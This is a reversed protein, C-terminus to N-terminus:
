GTANPKAGAASTANKTSNSAATTANKSAGVGAPAQANALSVTYLAATVFATLLIAATIVFSIQKQMPISGVFFSYICKRNRLVISSYKLNRCWDINEREKPSIALGSLINRIGRAVAVVLMVEVEGVPVM